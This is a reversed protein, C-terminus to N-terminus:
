SNRPLENTTEEDSKRLVEDDEEVLGELIRENDLRQLYDSVRKIEDKINGLQTAIDTPHILWKAQFWGDKLEKLNIVYKKENSKHFSNKWTVEIIFNQHKEVLKTLDNEGGPLRFDEHIGPLIIPTRWEQIQINDLPEFYMKAIVSFAPGRGANHIQLKVHVTSIPVLTATIYPDAEDERARRMELVMQWTFFAYVATVIVLVLSSYQNLNDLLYKVM